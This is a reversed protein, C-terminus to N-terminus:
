KVSSSKLNLWREALSNLVLLSHDIGDHPDLSLPRRSNIQHRGGIAHL